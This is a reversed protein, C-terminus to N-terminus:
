AQVDGADHGLAQGLMVLAAREKASINMFEQYPEHRRIGIMGLLSAVIGKGSAQAGDDECFALAVAEGIELMRVRFAGLEKDNMHVALVDHARMCEDPVDGLDNHWNPWSARNRLTEAMIHQVHESGFVQETFGEVINALATMEAEESAEGGTQDSQSVWLGVRYPLRTVLDKENTTLQELISM